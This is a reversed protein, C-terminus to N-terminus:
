EYMCYIVGTTLATTGATMDSTGAYIDRVQADALTAMATANARVKGALTGATITNAGQNHSSPTFSSPKSGIESWSYSPKTSAKAWSYVDSAPLSTPFDSIESKKHTHASPTMTTPFDSIDSKKHNHASPAMTTPFDTIESKTHTHASPTINQMDERIENLANTTEEAKAFYGAEHGNLKKADGVQTSGDEIKKLEADIATFNENSHEVSFFDEEEPLNFNYNETNKM